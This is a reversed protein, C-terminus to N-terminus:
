DRVDVAQGPRLRENGRTVVQDGVILGEGKVLARDGATAIVEIRLPEAKGDVLKVVRTEVPGQVLADRPVLVGQGSLDVNFEVDVDLGPLLWDPRSVPSLRVRSLRTQADLSPVVGAVRAQLEGAGLVLAEAGRALHAAVRAPVDVLIEVDGTSVLSVLPAGVAAWDGPSVHKRSVTGAFPARVTHRDLIVRIRQVEALQGQKQAALAAVELEYREREPASVAPYDLERVREFQKVAQEHRVALEAARARAAALESRTSAADLTVLVDGRKVADGERRKTALVRGAVAGAVDAQQAARVQGGFRRTDELTGETVRAVEVPAPAAAPGGAPSAPESRSCAATVLLFM